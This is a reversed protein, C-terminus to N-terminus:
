INSIDNDLLNSSYKSDIVKSEKMLKQINRSEIRLNGKLEKIQADTKGFKAYMEFVDLSSAM